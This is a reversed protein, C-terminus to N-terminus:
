RHALFYTCRKKHRPVGFFRTGCRVTAFRLDCIKCKHYVFVFSIHSHEVTEIKFIIKDMFIHFIEPIWGFRTVEAMHDCM